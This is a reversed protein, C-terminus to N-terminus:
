AAPAEESNGTDKNAKDEVAKADVDEKKQSAKEERVITVTAGPFAEMLHDLIHQVAVRRMDSSIKEPEPKPALMEALRKDIKVLAAVSAPEENDLAYFEHWVRLEFIEFDATNKFWKKHKKGDYPAKFAERALDIARRLALKEGSLSNLKDNPACISSAIVSDGKTRRIICIMMPVSSNPKEGSDYEDARLHQKIRESVLSIQFYRSGHKIVLTYM